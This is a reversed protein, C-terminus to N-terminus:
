KFTECTSSTQQVVQTCVHGRKWTIMRGDCRVVRCGRRMEMEMGVRM